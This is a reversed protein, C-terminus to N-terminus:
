GPLWAPPRALFLDGDTKAIDGFHGIIPPTVKTRDLDPKARLGFKARLNHEGGSQSKKAKQRMRDDVLNAACHGASGSFARGRKTALLLDEGQRAGRPHSAAAWQRGLWYIDRHLTMIVETDAGATESCVKIFYLDRELLVHRIRNWLQFLRTLLRLNSWFRGAAM